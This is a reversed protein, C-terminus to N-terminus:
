GIRSLLPQQVFELAAAILHAALLQMAHQM